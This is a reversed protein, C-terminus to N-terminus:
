RFLKELAAGHKPSREKVEKWAEDNAIKLWKEKVAGTFKITKMGGKAFM